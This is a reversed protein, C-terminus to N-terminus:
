PELRFADWQVVLHAEDVVLRSVSIDHCDLHRRLPSGPALQEPTTYAVKV